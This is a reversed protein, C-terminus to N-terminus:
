WRFLKVSGDPYDRVLAHGDPSIWWTSDSSMQCVARLRGPREFIAVMEGEPLANFQGLLRTFQDPLERVCRLAVFRGDDTVDGNELEYPVTMTWADGTVPSVVRLRQGRRFLTWRNDPSINGITVWGAPAKVDRGDRRFIDGDTNMVAGHYLAPYNYCGPYGYLDLYYDGRVLRPSGLTITGNAITVPSIQFKGGPLSALWLTGDPTLYGGGRATGQAVLRDGDVLYLRHFWYFPQVNSTQISVLVRGDDRTLLDTRLHRVITENPLACARLRKGADWTYVTLHRIEDAVSALYRGNPSVCRAERTPNPRFSGSLRGRVTVKWYPTGSWRTLAYVDQEVQTFFGAQTPNLLSNATAYTDVLKLRAPTAYRWWGILAALPLVLLLWWLWHRQFVPQLTIISTDRATM